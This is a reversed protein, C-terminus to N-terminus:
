STTLPSRAPQDGRLDLAWLLLKGENPDYRVGVQAFGNHDLVRQSAVNSQAAEATVRVVDPWRSLLVVLGAVSETAFSQGWVDPVFGYGIEVEGGVPPGKTGLLGVARQDRRDVAVLTGPVADEDADLGDALCPFFGLPDGPWDPCTRVWGLGEEGAVEVVADPDCLRARILQRTLPLLWLRGRPSVPM